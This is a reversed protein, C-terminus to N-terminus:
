EGLELIVQMQRDFHFHFPSCVNGFFGTGFKFVVAFIATWFKSAKVNIATINHTFFIWLADKVEKFLFNASSPYKKILLIADAMEEESTNSFSWFGKKFYRPNLLVPLAPNGTVRFPSVYKSM